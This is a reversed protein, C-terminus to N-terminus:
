HISKQAILSHFPDKMIGAFQLLKNTKHIDNVLEINDWDQSKLILKIYEFHDEYSGERWINPTKHWFARNSFSIILKGDNNLIRGIESTISEPYQLYQWGAVVLVYDVSKDELPIIYDTNLDQVWYSDLQKNNALESQNLGHGIVKKYKADLPLHSVWSSMLDLVVSDNRIHKKYLSTLKSRFNSDLHHVFKPSSYFIQDPSEDVKTRQHKNLLLPYM